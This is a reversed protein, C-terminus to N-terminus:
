LRCRALIHDFRDPLCTSSTSTGQADAMGRYNIVKLERCCSIGTQFLACRRVYCKPVRIERVTEFPALFLICLQWPLRQQFGLFQLLIKLTLTSGLRLFFFFVYLIYHSVSVWYEGYLSSPKTCEELNRM